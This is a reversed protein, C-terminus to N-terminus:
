RQNDMLLRRIREGELYVCANRHTAMLQRCEYSEHCHEKCHKINARVVWFELGIVAILGLSLVIEWLRQRSM